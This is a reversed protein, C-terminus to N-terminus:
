SHEKVKCFRIAISGTVAVHDVGVVLHDAELLRGDVRVGKHLLGVFDAAKVSKQRFISM